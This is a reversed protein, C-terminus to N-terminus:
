RYIVETQSKAWMEPKVRGGNSQCSLSECHYAALPLCYWFEVHGDVCDFVEARMPSFFDDSRMKWFPFDHLNISTHFNEVFLNDTVDIPGNQSLM